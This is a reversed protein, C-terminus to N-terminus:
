QVGALSLVVIFQDKSIINCGYKISDITVESYRNFDKTTENRITLTTTTVPIGGEYTRLSGLFGITTYTQDTKVIDGTTFNFDSVLKTDFNATVALDKLKDFAIDVSRKVKSRLSM